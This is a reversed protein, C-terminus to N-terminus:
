GSSSAVAAATDVFVPATCAVVAAAADAESVYTEHQVRVGVVEVEHCVGARGFM